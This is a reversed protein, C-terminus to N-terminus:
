AIKGGETFEYENARINEDVCGDSSQYECEANIIKAFLWAVDTCLEQFYETAENEVSPADDLSGEAMQTVHRGSSYARGTYGAYKGAFAVFRTAIAHTEDNSKCGVGAPRDALLRTLAGNKDTDEASYEADFAAGTPNTGWYVAHGTNRGRPKDVTFGLATLLEVFEETPTEAFDNADISQRFWDRAEGKARDSLEDFQYLTITKQRM